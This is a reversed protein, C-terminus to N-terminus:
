PIGSKKKAADILKAEAKVAKTFDNLVQALLEAKAISQQRHRATGLFFELEICRKCDAILLMYNGQKYEGNDSSEAEAYIYSTFGTSPSNLFARKRYTYQTM